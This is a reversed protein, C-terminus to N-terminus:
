STDCTCSARIPIGGMLAAEIAALSFVIFVASVLCAPKLMISSSTAITIVSMTLPAM